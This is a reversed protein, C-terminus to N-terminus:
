SLYQVMPISKKEKIEMSRKILLYIGRKERKEGRVEERIACECKRNERLGKDSLRGGKEIGKDMGKDM